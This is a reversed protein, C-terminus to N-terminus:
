KVKPPKPINLPFTQQSIIEGNNINDPTNAREITVTITYNGPKLGETPITLVGNGGAPVNLAISNEAIVKKKANIRYTTRFNNTNAISHRNEVNIHGSSKGDDTLEIINGKPLIVAPAENANYFVISARTDSPNRKIKEGGVVMDSNWEAGANGYIVPRKHEVKKLALYAEYMNLGKGGQKGMSFMVVSPHTQSTYYMNMLRDTYAKQWEPDNALTGGVRLSEGSLSADINAQNCVYIGYADCMDYFTDQQPYDTVRIMNVGKKKMTALDNRLTGLEEAPEYDVAYIDFRKGNILLGKNDFSVSRFGIKVAAYETFRGEHQLKMTVTYLMPSEHSWTQVNPINAFFRVTDESKLRFQADRKGSTVLKGDPGLLEYYVTVQKPNLLQSKVIAGFNFLGDTGNPAFETDIVYDRIRVRPQSYVYLDREIACGEEKIQNELSKSLPNAYVVIAIQNKGDTVLKTINFDRATKSDEHYGALRGNIYLYYARSVAGIHVLVERDIWAFPVKFDRRYIVAEAKHPKTEPVTVDMWSSINAAPKVLMTDVQAIDNFTKIKWAGKLPEFYSSSDDLQRLSYDRNNYPKIESRPMEDKLSVQQPDYLQSHEQANVNITFMAFILVLAIRIRGKMM